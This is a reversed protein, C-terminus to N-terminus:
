ELGNFFDELTIGHIDLVKLLSHITFNTGKELRWYGVRPLKHEWAFFESSVYGKEERIKRLKEGIAVARPDVEKKNVETVKKNIM